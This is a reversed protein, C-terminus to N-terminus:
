TPALMFVHQKRDLHQRYAIAVRRGIWEGEPEPGILTSVLIPGEDLRVAVANYPVPHDDFYQRHFRVWSLIEGGGSVATWEHDLSHCAACVPGPPYRFAGCDSCKQLEMHRRELSDWLPRDYLTMVRTSDAM